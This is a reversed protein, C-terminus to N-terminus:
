NQFIRQQLTFQLFFRCKPCFNHRTFNFCFYPRFFSLPYIQPFSFIAFIGYVPKRKKAPCIKLHFHGLISFIPTQKTGGTPRKQCVNGVGRGWFTAFYQGWGNPHPVTGVPASCLAGRNYRRWNLTEVWPQKSIQMRWIIDRKPFLPSVNRSADLWRNATPRNKLRGGEGSFGTYLIKALQSM